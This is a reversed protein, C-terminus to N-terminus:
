TNISTSSKGKGKVFASVNNKTKPNELEYGLGRRDGSERSMTLMHGFKENGQALLKISRREHGELLDVEKLLKITRSTLETYKLALSEKAKREHYLVTNLEGLKMDLYIVKLNLEENEKQHKSGNDTALESFSNQQAQILDMKLSNVEKTLEKVEKKLEQNTKILKVSEHYMENYAEQLDEEDEDVEDEGEYVEECKSPSIEPEGRALAMFARVEHSLEDESYQSEVDIEDLDDDWTAAM